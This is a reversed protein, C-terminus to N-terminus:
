ELKKYNERLCESIYYYRTYYGLTGTDSDDNSCFGFGYYNGTEHLVEEIISCMQRKKSLTIHDETKALLVNARKLLKAVSFTKKPMIDRQKNNM